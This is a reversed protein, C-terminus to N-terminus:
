TIGTSLWKSNTCNNKTMKLSNKNHSHVVIFNSTFILWNLPATSNKKSLIECKVGQMKCKITLKSVTSKFFIALYGATENCYHGNYYIVTTYHQYVTRRFRKMKMTHSSCILLWSFANRQRWTQQVGKLNLTHIFGGSPYIKLIGNSSKNKDPQPVSIIYANGKPAWGWVTLVSTLLSRPPKWLSGAHVKTAPQNSPQETVAPPVHTADSPFRLRSIKSSQDALIM